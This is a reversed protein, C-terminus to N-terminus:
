LGYPMYMAYHDYPLLQPTGDYALRQRANLMNPTYRSATASLTQYANTTQTSDPISHATVQLINSLSLNVGPTAMQAPTHLRPQATCTTMIPPAPIKRGIGATDHEPTADGAGASTM